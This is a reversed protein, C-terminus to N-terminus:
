RQVPALRTNWWQELGPEDPGCPCGASRYASWAAARLGDLVVRNGGSARLLALGFPSPQGTRPSHSASSVFPADMLDPGNPACRDRAGREDFGM